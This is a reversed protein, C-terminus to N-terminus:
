VEGFPELLLLFERTLDADELAALCAPDPASMGEVLDKLPPESSGGAIARGVLVLWVHGHVVGFTTIRGLIWYM